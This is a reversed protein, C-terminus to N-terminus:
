RKPKKGRFEQEYWVKPPRPGAKAGGGQPKGGAPRQGYPKPARPKGGQPREAAVRGKGPSPPRAEGTGRDGLARLVDPLVALVNTIGSIPASMLVAELIEQSTAGQEKAKPIHAVIAPAYRERALIAIYILQKTKEDLAGADAVAYYLGEFKKAVDPFRQKLLEFDPNTSLYPAGEM